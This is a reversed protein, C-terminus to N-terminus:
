VIPVGKCRPQVKNNGLNCSGFTVFNDETSWWFNNCLLSGDPSPVNLYRNCCATPGGTYFCCWQATVGMTPPRWKPCDLVGDERPTVPGAAVLGAVALLNILNFSVM